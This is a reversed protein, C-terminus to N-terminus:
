QTDPYFSEVQAMLLSIDAERSLRHDGDKVLTVKVDATDLAEALRLSTEWPVDADNQGHLLRVPCHIVISGALQLN